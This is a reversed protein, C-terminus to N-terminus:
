PLCVPKWRLFSWRQPCGKSVLMQITTITADVSRLHVWERTIPNHVTLSQHLQLAAAEAILTGALGGQRFRVTSLVSKHSPKGKAWM